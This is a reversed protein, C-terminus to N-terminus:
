LTSHTALSTSNAILVIAFHRSIQPIVNLGFVKGVSEGIPTSDASHNEGCVLGEDIVFLTEMM